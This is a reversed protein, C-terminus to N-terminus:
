KGAYRLVVGGAGVAYGRESKHLSISYLNAPTASEQVIWTEGADHTRLVTGGYGVVWGRKKDIFAIGLLRLKAAVPQDDGVLAAM